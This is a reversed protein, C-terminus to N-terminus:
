RASPSFFEEITMQRGSLGQSHHHRLFTNLSAQEDKGLRSLKVEPAFDSGDKPKWIRRATGVYTEFAELMADGLDPNDRLLEKRIGVVHMIPCIGTKAFYAREAEGHNRVLRRIKDPHEVFCLPPNPNILVDIDGDLLMKSLYKEPGVNEISVDAPPEFFHDISPSTRERRAVFWKISSPPVGFEDELLARAWTHGTHDYEALGVRCGRIESPSEAPFDSRVYFISHQFARGFYYPIAIYRCAGEGHLSVYRSISIEAVDFEPADFVRSYMEGSVLPVPSIDWRPVRFTGDFLAAHNDSKLVAITLPRATPM